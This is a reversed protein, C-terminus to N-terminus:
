RERDCCCGRRTDFAPEPVFARVSLGPRRSLAFRRYNTRTRESVGANESENLLDEYRDHSGEAVVGPSTTKLTAGEVYVRNAAELKLPRALDLQTVPM